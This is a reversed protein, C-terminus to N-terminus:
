RPLEAAAAGRVVPIGAGNVTMVEVEVLQSDPLDRVATVTAGAVLDDGPWVQGLFQLEYRRLRGDGLWDTLLRGTMGMTLMGHAFVTPYGAVQTNYVEDTHQPSFDGSAGAYQIIRARTLDRVLVTSRRDGVALEGARPRRDRLGEPSAGDASLGDPSPEDPSPTAAVLALGEPTPVAAAPEIKKLTTVAVTRATLAVEGHQDRYDVFWDNFVLAGGRRGKKEWTRGPREESMLVDGAVPHRHYEVHTSAHFTTGPNADERGPDGTPQGSSGFWPEGDRPRCTNGPDFHAGAEYFTPPALVGTLGASAAATEDLYIPNDDGIARCFIAIHGAEVPFRFGM